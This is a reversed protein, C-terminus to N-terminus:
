PQRDLWQRAIGVAREAVYAMRGLPVDKDRIVLLLAGDSPKALHLHATGAEASLGLWEGFELLRSTRAAEDSVGALFAAAAETVDDGHQGTVHGGLVRGQTDLLVMGESIGDLGREVEAAPPEAPLESAPAPAATRQGDRGLEQAFSRVTVLAQEISANGHELESAAELHALANAMDGVRFYLFGLGKHAGPHEPAIRLVMDWEDFAREFDYRDSYVRALLDHADALHPHRELGTVAVREAADLQRRQRLAEGLRLFVLSTPDRAFEASLARIDEAM